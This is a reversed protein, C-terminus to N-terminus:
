STKALKGTCFSIAHTPGVTRVVAVIEAQGSLVIEKSLIKQGVKKVSVLM